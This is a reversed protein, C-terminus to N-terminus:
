SKKPTPKKVKFIEDLQGSSKLKMLTKSIRDRIDPALKKSVAIYQKEKGFNAPLRRIKHSEEEHKELYDNLGADTVFFFRGRKALLKAVNNSVNASGDDVNLGKQNKLYTALATGFLTLIKNDTKLKRIDDFSRANVPDDSRVAMVYNFEAIPTNLFNFKAERAKTKFAAVFVDISGDELMAEIRPITAFNEYGSFHLSPDEKELAKIVEVAYGQMKGNELYYKPPFDQASTKLFIPSSEAYSYFFSFIILLNILYTMKRM